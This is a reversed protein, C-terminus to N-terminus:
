TANKGSLVCVCYKVVMEVMAACDNGWFHDNDDYVYLNLPRCSVLDGNEATKSGPQTMGMMMKDQMREECEDGEGHTADKEDAPEEKTSWDRNINLNNRFFLRGGERVVDVKLKNVNTYQDQTGIVLLRDVNSAEVIREFYKKAKLVSAMSGLPISVGVLVRVKPSILSQSAIAAGFSYGIVGVSVNSHAADTEVAQASLKKVLYDVVHVVDGADQQGLMNKYHIRSGESRGVGRQNYLLVAGFQGCVQCQRCYYKPLAVM